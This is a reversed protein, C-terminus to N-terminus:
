RLGDASEALRSAAALLVLPDSADEPLFQVAYFVGLVFGSLSVQTIAVDPTTTFMSRIRDVAGDLAAADIPDEAAMAALLYAVFQRGSGASVSPAEADLLCIGGLVPFVQDGDALGDLVYGSMAALFGNLFGAVTNQDVALGVQEDIILAV